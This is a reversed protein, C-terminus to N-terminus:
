PEDGTLELYHVGRLAAAARGLARLEGVLEYSRSTTACRERWGRTSRHASRRSTSRRGASSTRSRREPRKRTTTRRSRRRRRRPSRASRPRTASPSTPSCRATSSSARRACAPSSSTTRSGTRAAGGRQHPHDLASRFTRKKNKRDRYAYVLSHEVQEKAYRYHTSKRGWYGKAQELVKRRKKRAHVSRKVRPMVEGGPAEERGERRGERRSPRKGFDRKRKSSKKELNHSKMAHRRMCSERGTVKFRKKAGSGTKMKPM